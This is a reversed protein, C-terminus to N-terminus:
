VERMSERENSEEEEPSLTEWAVGMWDMYTSFRVLTDPNGDCYLDWGSQPESLGPYFYNAARSGSLILGLSHMVSLLDCSYKTLEKFYM